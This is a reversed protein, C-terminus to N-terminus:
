NKTPDFKGGDQIQVGPELQALDLFNRGSVPLSEIEKSTLVGQVSPQETNVQVLTGTVEVMQTEQGIQLKVNGASTVGVSITVTMEATRFGKQEVRVVYDGPSLAGSSYAGASSTVLNIVQGTARNSIIVKAGNVVADSQDTITGQISGTSITSQAALLGPMSILILALALSIFKFRPYRVKM